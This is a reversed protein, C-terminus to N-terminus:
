GDQMLIDQISLMDITVLFIVGDKEIFFGTGRIEIINGNDGWHAIIKKASYLFSNNLGHM